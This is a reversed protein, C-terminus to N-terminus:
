KATSARWCCAPQAVGLPVALWRSGTGALLGISPAAAQLDTAITVLNVVVVVVSLLLVTAVGQSYRKLTLSQLDDRAEAGFQAAIALVVGLLPIVLLAV